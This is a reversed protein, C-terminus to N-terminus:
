ATVVISAAKEPSWTLSAELLFGESLILVRTCESLAQSSLFLLAHADSNQGFCNFFFKLISFIEPARYVSNLVGARQILLTFELWSLTKFRLTWTQLISILNVVWRM